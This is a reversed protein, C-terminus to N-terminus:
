IDVETDQIMNKGSFHVTHKLSIPLRVIPLTLSSVSCDDHALIHTFLSNLSWMHDATLDIELLIFLM